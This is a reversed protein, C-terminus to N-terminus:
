TFNIYVGAGFISIFNTYLFLIRPFPLAPVSTSVCPCILLFYAVAMAMPHLCFSCSNSYQALLPGAAQDGPDEVHGESVHDVRGEPENPELDSDVQMVSVVAIVFLICLNV